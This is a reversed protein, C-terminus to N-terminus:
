RERRREMRRLLQFARRRARYRLAKLPPFRLPRFDVDRVDAAEQDAKKIAWLSANWQYGVEAATRHPRARPDLSLDGGGFRKVADFYQPDRVCDTLSIWDYKDANALLFARVEREEGSPDCAVATLPSRPDNQVTTSTSSVTADSM